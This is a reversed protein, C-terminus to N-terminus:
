IYYIYIVTFEEKDYKASKSSLVKEEQIPEYGRRKEFM